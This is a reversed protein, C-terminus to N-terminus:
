LFVDRDTSQDRLCALHVGMLPSHRLFAVLSKKKQKLRRYATLSLIVATPKGHVSIYQPSETIMACKVLQSLKSKAEQLQWTKM